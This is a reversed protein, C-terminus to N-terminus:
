VSGGAKCADGYVTEYNAVLTTKERKVPAIRRTGEHDCASWALVDIIGETDKLSLIHTEMEEMEVFVNQRVLALFTTM